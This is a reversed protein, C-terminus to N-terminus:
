GSLTGSVLCGSGSPSDHALFYGAINRGGGSFVFGQTTMDFSNTILPVSGGASIPGSSSNTSDPLIHFGSTRFTGTASSALDVSVAQNSGGTGCSVLVKVPGVQAVTANTTGPAAISALPKVEIGGVTAANSASGASKVSLGPALKNVETDAIRRTQRKEKGSLASITAVSAVGTGALAFVVAIISLVMPASLRKERMKSSRKITAAGLKWQGGPHLSGLRPGPLRDLAVPM